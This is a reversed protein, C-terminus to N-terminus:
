KMKLKSFKLKKLDKFGYADAKLKAGGIEIIKEDVHKGGIKEYFLKYRSEQLVLIIMTDISKEILEYIFKNVLRSGYGRRQYKELFYIAM